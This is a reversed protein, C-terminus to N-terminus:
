VAICLVAPSGNWNWAVKFRTLCKDLIPEELTAERWNKGGDFSVDVARIKGSGSWALGTVEYGEAVLLEALYSGDQGTIGTILATPM